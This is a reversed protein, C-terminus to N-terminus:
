ESAEIGAVEDHADPVAHVLEDLKRQMATEGRKQALLVLQTTSIALISLINTLLDVSLRAVFWLGCLVPILVIAFPSAFWDASACAIRQFKM